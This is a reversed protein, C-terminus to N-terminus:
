GAAVAKQLADQARSIEVVSDRLARLANRQRVPQIERAARAAKRASAISQDLAATLAKFQSSAGSPAQLRHLDTSTVALLDAFRDLQRAIARSSKASSRDRTTAKTAALQNSARDLKAIAQNYGTSFSTTDEGSGGCASLALVLCLLASLGIVPPRLANRM